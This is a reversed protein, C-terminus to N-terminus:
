DELVACSCSGRVLVQVLQCWKPIAMGSAVHCTILLAGDHHRRPTAVVAVAVAPASLSRVVLLYQAFVATIIKLYLSVFPLLLCCCALSPMGSPSLQFLFILQLSPRSAGDPLFPSSVSQNGRASVLSMIADFVLFPTQALLSSVCPLPEAWAM